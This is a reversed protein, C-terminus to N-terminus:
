EGWHEMAVKSVDDFSKSSSIQKRNVCFVWFGSGKHFHLGRIGSKSNANARHRNLANERRTAIRLNAVRNDDRIGNIHDVDMGEPIAENFAEYVIQHVFKHGSALCLRMYGNKTKTPKLLLNSKQKKGFAIRLISGDEFVLYPRGCIEINASQM